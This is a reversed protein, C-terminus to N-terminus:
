AIKLNLVVPTFIFILLFPKVATSNSTESAMREIVRPDM